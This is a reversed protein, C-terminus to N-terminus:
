PFSECLRPREKEQPRHLLWLVSKVVVKEKVKHIREFKILKEMVQPLFITEAAAIKM